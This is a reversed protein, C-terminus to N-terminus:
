TSQTWTPLDQPLFVEIHRSVADVVSGVFPASVESGPGIHSLHPGTVAGVHHAKHGFHPGHRLGLSHRPPDPPDVPKLSTIGRPALLISHHLSTHAPTILLSWHLPACPLHGSTPSQIRQRNKYVTCSTAGAHEKSQLCTRTAELALCRLLNRLSPRYSLTARDSFGTEEVL